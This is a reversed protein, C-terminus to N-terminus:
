PQINGENFLAKNGTAKGSKLPSAAPEKRDVSM